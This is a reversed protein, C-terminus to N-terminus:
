QRALLGMIEAAPLPHSFLNGQAEGCGDECLTQLQAETEVGEATTVVSLASCMDTVARVIAHSQRSQELERTFSRDIKVKDFPFRRLYSLSSTGTGFDDMVIRVGLSKLRHLRALTAGTDHLMVAETIELELRAPDLGSRDLAAAIVDVLGRHAFQTPSLNVAVRLRGPWGAADACARALVWEGIPVILGIEEALPMFAAPLVLGREPHQWRLLAELGSIRRSALDIVPQYFLEFGGTLLARRLDLELTRRRQMRADMDPEFFRWCGRGEAKARYLALDAAKVLRDATCGDAPALAIGISSGIVVQHDDLEFPIGLREVLRYALTTASQPQDVVSQIVAFEDGGLRALTDTERLETRLRATVARLLADGVPHGLTDNVEKFRDLDILLVAFGEGRQARALAEELREHFLARNPLGTLPDHRALHAIHAEAERRETVDIIVGLAGLPQWEAGYEWRSRTEFHRLSGDSLRRIRFTATTTSARLALAAHLHARITELDEPLIPGWWQAVTLPAEGAPLGIMARAEPSCHVQGTVYDHRFSGIHGIELSLRLLAEAERSDTVDIVAGIDSVPRGNADYSFHTRLEIHRLKGDAPHRIRYGLTLNPQRRSMADAIAALVRRRDVPLLTGLWSRLSVPTEDVPLGHLARVGADCSIDGSAMDHTYTGIRSTEMGLRLLAESARVRETAARLATIDQVIGIHRLPQGDPGRASVGVSLRGWVVTGDPRLYRLEAEFRDSNGQASRRLEMIRARDAPHMVDFPTMGHCLEAETRGTLECYRRNVRLFRVTATDVETLGAMSNAFVADLATRYELARAARERERARALRNALLVAGLTLAELLLVGTGFHWADRRWPALVEETGRTAVLVLPFDSAVRVGIVREVGDLMSHERLAGSPGAALVRRFTPTEGFPVGVVHEMWPHRALLVGDRRHLAVTSQPGLTLRAFFDEFFGLDIAAAVVGLFTGDTAIVRRSLYVTWRGDIQSRVPGTLIGDPGPQDRAADFPPQGAMIVDPAPWMMSSGVLRGTADILLLRRVRPLAAIRARLMEQTARSALQDHFERPTNIGEAAMWALIETELRDITHFSDEVWNGLALALNRMERETDHLLAQRQQVLYLGTGLAIVLGLAGGILARWLGRRASGRRVRRILGRLLDRWTLQPMPPAPPRPRDM